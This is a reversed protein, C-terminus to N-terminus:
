RPGGDNDFGVNAVDPGADLLRDITWALKVKARCRDIDARTAYQEVCRMQQAEYGLAAAEQAPKEFCGALIRVVLLGLGVGLLFHPIRRRRPKPAPEIYIDIADREGPMRYPSM